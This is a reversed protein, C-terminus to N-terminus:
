SCECIVVSFFNQLCQYRSIVQLHSPTPASSRLPHRCGTNWQIITSRRFRLGPLFVSPKPQSTNYVQLNAHHSRGVVLYYAKKFVTSKFIHLFVHFREACVNWLINLSHWLSVSDQKDELIFLPKETERFLSCLKNGGCLYSVLMDFIDDNVWM